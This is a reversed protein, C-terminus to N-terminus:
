IHGDSLSLLHFILGLFGCLRLHAHWYMVGMCRGLVLMVALADCFNREYGYIPM